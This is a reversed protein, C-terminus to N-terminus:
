SITCRKSRGSRNPYPASRGGPRMPTSTWTRGSESGPRSPWSPRTCARRTGRTRGGTVGLSRSRGCSCGGQRNVATFLTMPTLLEAFEQWLGQAVLYLDRSTGSSHELLTTTLRNEEGSRTRVFWTKDPRRAPVATLAPAVKPGQFAEGSLRLSAPDFPDPGAPDARVFEARLNEPSFDAEFCGNLNSM